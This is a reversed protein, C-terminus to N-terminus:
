RILTLVGRTLLVEGQPLQTQLLYLYVGSPQEVGKWNGDWGEAQEKNYIEQGWANFIKFQLIYKKDLETPRFYDNIGDENPTFADPMYVKGQCVDFNPMNPCVPFEESFYSQIFNPLGLVSQNPSLDLVSDQYQCNIGLLNPTQIAGMSQSNYSVIYIKQDLALQLTGFNPKSAVVFESAKIAAANGATLDFQLVKASSLLTSAYLLQGDPSFEVGYTWGWDPDQLRIPNSILGTYTDFDFIEIASADRIVVAMRSGDSSFKLYGAMNGTNLSGGTHNMGITQIHPIPNFGDETIKYIYFDATNWDHAVVWVDKNNCHKVAAVKETPNTLLLENKITIDGYGNDLSLDVISYRFGDAVGVLDAADVTFIYYLIPNSPHPVILASQSSSTNGLLGTGNPMLQHKNNWVNLGDTYFLLRGNADAISACGESINMETDYLPVPPSQNFDLGAKNGFYWIAAQKNSCINCICGEDACDILGNADDDLGNNCIEQAFLNFPFITLLFITYFYQM